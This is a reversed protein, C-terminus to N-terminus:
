KSTTNEGGNKDAKGEKREDERAVNEVTHTHHIPQEIMHTISIYAQRCATAGAM